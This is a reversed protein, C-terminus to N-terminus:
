INRFINASPKDSLMFKKLQKGIKTDFNNPSSKIPVSLPSNEFYRRIHSHYVEMLERIIKGPILDCGQLKKLILNIALIDKIESCKTAKIPSSIQFSVM